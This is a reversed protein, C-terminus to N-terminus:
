RDMIYDLVQDERASSGFGQGRRFGKHTQKPPLICREVVLQAIAKHPSYAYGSLSHNFLMVQITGTFDPDVVGGAPVVGFDRAMGSKPSIRGYSGEPLKVSLGVSITARNQALVVGKTIPYLDWGAASQYALTPLTANPDQATFVVQEELSPLTTMTAVTAYTVPPCLLHHGLVGLVFALLPLCPLEMYIWPAVFITLRTWLQYTKM